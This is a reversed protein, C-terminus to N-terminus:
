SSDMYEPKRSSSYHTRSNYQAAPDKKKGATSDAEQSAYFARCDNKGAYAAERVAAASGEDQPQEAAEQPMITKEEAATAAAYAEELLSHMEEASIRSHMFANIIGDKITSDIISYDKEEPLDPKSDEEAAEPQGPDEKEAAEAEQRLANLHYEVLEKELEDYTIFGRKYKNKLDDTFMDYRAFAAAVLAEREAEEKRSDRDTKPIDSGAISHLAIVFAAAERDSSIYDQRYENFVAVIDAYMSSLLDDFANVAAHYFPHNNNNEYLYDYIVSFMSLLKEMNVSSGCFKVSKKRRQKAEKDPQTKEQAAEQKEEPQAETSDAAKTSAPDESILDPQEDNAAEEPQAEKYGAEIMLSDFHKMYEKYQAKSRAEMLRPLIKKVAEIIQDKKDAAACQMGCDACLIIWSSKSDRRYVSFDIGAFQFSYGNLYPKVTRKGYEACYSYVITKKMKPDEKRQADQIAECSYIKVLVENLAAFKKAEKAAEKKMSDLKESEERQKAAEYQQRIYANLEDAYAAPDGSLDVASLLKKFETKPCPLAASLDIRIRGREYKIEFASGELM